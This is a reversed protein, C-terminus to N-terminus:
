NLAKSRIQVPHRVASDHVIDKCLRDLRNKFANVSPAEVVKADLSNWSAFVRNTFFNQRLSTDCRQKELKYIHGRKRDDTVLKFPKSCDYMEHTFKYKEILDGRISRYNMSPLNMMKLRNEYELNALGPVCKTARRQVQEILNRDKELKPSWISCAYELHPRVLACFLLKM